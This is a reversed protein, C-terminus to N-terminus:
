FKSLVDSVAGSAQHGYEAVHNKVFQQLLNAQSLGQYDAMSFTGNKPAWVTFSKTNDLETDFGAQKVLAAFDSLEADQQINQWLTQNGAPLADTPVENYDKFDSCSTATLMGAALMVGIKNIYKM